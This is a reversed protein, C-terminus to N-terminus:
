SHGTLSSLYRAIMDVELNVKDGKKLNRLNTHRLTYDVLSVSFDNKRVDVVTLSVGNLTISGKEAIFKKYWVSLSIKLVVSGGIRRVERVEGTTDIHGQVFHGDLRDGLRLSRELNVQTGKTFFGVTTRKLTEPMYEVEFATGRLKAVTSCIGDVSVSEGLKLRSSKPIEIAVLISAGKKSVSAM